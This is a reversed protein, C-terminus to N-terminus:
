NLFVSRNPQGHIGADRNLFSVSKIQRGRVDMGDEDKSTKIRQRGEPSDRVASGQDLPKVSIQRYNTQVSLFIKQDTCIGYLNKDPGSLYRYLIQVSRFFIKLIRVSLNCVFIQIKDPGSM